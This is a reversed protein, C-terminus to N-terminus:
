VENGMTGQQYSGVLISATVMILGPSTSYLPFTPFPKNIAIPQQIKTHNTIIIITQAVADGASGVSSFRSICGSSTLGDWYFVGKKIRIFIYHISYTYENPRPNLVSLNGVGM